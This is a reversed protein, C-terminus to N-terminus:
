QVPAIIGNLCAAVVRVGFGSPFGTSASGIM